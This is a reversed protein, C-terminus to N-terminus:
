QYRQRLPVLHFMSFLAFGSEQLGYTGPEFGPAPELATMRGRLGLALALPRVASGGTAHLQRAEFGPSPILPAATPLLHEFPPRGSQLNSPALPAYTLM